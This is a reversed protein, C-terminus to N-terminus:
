DETIKGNVAQHFGYIIKNGGFSVLTVEKAEGPEFRVANGSPINLRMGYALLREFNLANNTEYFHYHSGVQIPRDGQNVVEITVTKRGQNLIIEDDALQYEGPIM